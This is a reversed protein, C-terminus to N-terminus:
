LCYEYKSFQMSYLWGQVSEMKMGTLCSFLQLSVFLLLGKQVFQVWLLVARVDLRFFVSSKGVLGREDPAYKELNKGGSWM